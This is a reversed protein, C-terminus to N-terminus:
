PRCATAVKQFKSVLAKRGSQKLRGITLMLTDYAGSEKCSKSFPELAAEEQGSGVLSQALGYQARTSSPSAKVAAKFYRSAVPYNKKRLFLTGAAWQVFENKPFRKAAAVAQKEAKVDEKQDHYTQVLYVYHDPYAPALTISTICNKVAQSLYGDYADLRCLEQYLEPREGFKEIGELLLERAEGHSKQQLLTYLLQDFAPKYKPALQLTKRLQQIGQTLTTKNREPDTITAAQKIYAQGLLMRAQFDDEKATVYLNLVRVENAYDKQSSYSFALLRFGEPSLQDTYTNLLEVIKDFKNEEKYAHALALRTKMNDPDTELKKELAASDVAHALGTWLSLAIVLFFRVM